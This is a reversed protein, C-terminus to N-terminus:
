QRHYTLVSMELPFLSSYPLHCICHNSVSFCMQIIHLKYHGIGCILHITLSHHGKSLFEAIVHGSGCGAPLVFFEAMQLSILLNQGWHLDILISNKM